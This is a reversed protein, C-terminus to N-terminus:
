YLLSICHQETCIWKSYKWCLFVNNTQVFPRSSNGLRMLSLLPGATPLPWCMGQLDSLFLSFWFSVIIWSFKEWLLRKLGNTLDRWYHHLSKEGKSAGQDWFDEFPSLEIQKIRWEAWDEYIRLECLNEGSTQGTWIFRFTSFFRVFTEGSNSKRALSGVVHCSFFHERQFNFKLSNPPVWLRLFLM